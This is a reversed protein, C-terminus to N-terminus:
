AISAQDNGIAGQNTTTGGTVQTLIAPTMGLSRAVEATTQAYSDCYAKLAVSILEPEENPIRDDYHETKAQGSQNLYRNGAVYQIDNLKGIDRARRIIAKASVRWRLKQSYIVQWDIRGPMHPFERLFSQRPMLFASAFRNAQAETVDDGTEIGQHIVLHACEHALDFRLRGPSGKATNRVVIPRARAISLADVEHRPSSFFTVVAGANELVRCMNGIPGTGLNWYRRSEEAALEIDDDSTVELHPFAVQPLTMKGELFHVLTEVVTGHAVIQDALKNPMSRRSRFHCQEERIETVLPASFFDPNVRLALALAPLLERSPVKEGVEIAHVFQRSVQLRDALEAKTWGNLLRALRLKSNSFPREPAAM